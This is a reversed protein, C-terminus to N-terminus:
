RSYDQLANGNYCESKLPFDEWRDSKTSAFFKSCTHGRNTPALPFFKDSAVMKNQRELCLTPFRSKYHHQPNQRNDGEVKMYFQTTNDLTKQIVDDLLM